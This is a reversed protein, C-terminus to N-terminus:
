EAVKGKIKLNVYKKYYKMVTNKSIKLKKSINYFSYKENRLQIIKNIYDEYKTLRNTNYIKNKLKAHEERHCNACLLICKQLEKKLTEWSRTIGQKSIGFDKQTSDIHHFELSDICKNYGCKKCKGGLYIVAKEKLRRRKLTVYEAACKRCRIKGNKDIRHSCLGHYKCIKFVTNNM